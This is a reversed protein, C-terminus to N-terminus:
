WQVTAYPADAMSGADWGVGFWVGDPGTLTLTVMPAHYPNATTPDVAVTIDLLSQTSGVLPGAHLASSFLFSAPACSPTESCISFM